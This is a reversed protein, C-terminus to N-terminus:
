DGGKAALLIEGRAEAGAIADNVDGYLSGVGAGVLWVAVKDSDEFDFMGEIGMPVGSGPVAALSSSGRAVAHDEAIWGLRQVVGIPEMGGQAAPVGFVTEAGALPSDEVGASREEKVEM